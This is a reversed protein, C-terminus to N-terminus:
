MILTGIVYHGGLAKKRLDHEVYAWKFRRVTGSNIDSSMNEPMIITHVVFHEDAMSHGIHQKIARNKQM